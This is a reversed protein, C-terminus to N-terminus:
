HRTGVVGQVQDYVGVGAAWACVGFVGQVDAVLRCVVGVLKGSVYLRSLEIRGVAQGVGAFIRGDTLLKPGMTGSRNHSHKQQMKCYGVNPMGFDNFTGANAPAKPPAPPSTMGLPRVFVQALVCCFMSANM